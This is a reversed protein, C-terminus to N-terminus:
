RYKPRRFWSPRRLSTLRSRQLSDARDAPSPLETSLPGIEVTQFTLDSKYAVLLVSGNRAPLDSVMQWGEPEPTGEEWVNMAVRATTENLYESRVHLVYPINLGIDPRPIEEWVTGPYATFRMHPARMDTGLWTLAQLPWEVRPNATGEHGQWGLVVGGESNPPGSHIIMTAYVEFNSEWTDQGIAVLRDYGVTATRLGQPTQEWEGDLVQVV